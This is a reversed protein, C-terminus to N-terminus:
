HIAFSCSHQRFRRISVEVRKYLNQLCTLIPNMVLKEAEKQIDRKEPKGTQLLVTQTQAHGRLADVLEHKPKLGGSESIADRVGAYIQSMGVLGEITLLAGEIGTVMARPRCKQSKM